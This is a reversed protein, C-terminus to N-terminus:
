IALKILVSAFLRKVHSIQGNLSTPRTVPTEMLIDLQTHVLTQLRTEFDFRMTIFPLSFQAFQILLPQNYQSFHSVRGCIHWSWKQNSFNERYAVAFVFIMCVGSRINWTFTLNSFFTCVHNTMKSKLFAIFYSLKKAEDSMYSM